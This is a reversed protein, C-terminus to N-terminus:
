AAGGAIVAVAQRHESRLCQLSQRLAACAAPGVGSLRRIDAVLARAQRRIDAARQRAAATEVEWHQARQQAMSDAVDRAEQGAATECDFGWCSEQEGEEGAADSLTVVFGVLGDRQVKRWHDGSAAIGARAALWAAHRAMGARSAGQRREQLPYDTELWAWSCRDDVDVLVRGARDMWGEPAGARHADRATRCRDVSYFDGEMPESDHELAIVIREGRPLELTVTDGAYRPWELAAMKVNYRAARIAQAAPTGNAREAFYATKTDM